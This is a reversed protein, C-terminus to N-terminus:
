VRKTLGHVDQRVKLTDLASVFKSSFNRNQNDMLGKLANRACNALSLACVYNQKSYMDLAGDIQIEALDRYDLM